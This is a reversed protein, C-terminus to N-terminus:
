QFTELQDMYEQVVKRKRADFGTAAAAAAAAVDATSITEASSPTGAVSDAAATAAGTGVDMVIIGLIWVNVAFFGM